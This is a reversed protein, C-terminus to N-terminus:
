ALLLRLATVLADSPFLTIDDDIVSHEGDKVYFVKATDKGLYVHLHEIVNGPLAQRRLRNLLLDLPQSLGSRTISIGACSMVTAPTSPDSSAINSNV